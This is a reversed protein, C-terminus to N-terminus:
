PTPQRSPLLVSHFAPIALLYALASASLVSSLGFVTALIPVAAAGMVSFSGNIGWAWIFLSDKGLRGLWTMATSMPFGMLFAPPAVLAFCALIRLAYPLAGIWELLPLLARAYLWFLAVIAALILPLSRRAQAMLRESALSGLGLFILMATILISASITPNGLPETFRAILAVEVMIYGLGLCAFYLVTGLRGPQRQFLSRWGAALPVAILLLAAAVAAFLTAWM